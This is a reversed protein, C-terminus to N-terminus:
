GKVMKVFSKIDESIVLSNELVRIFASGIIAGNAYQCAQTFTQNDKIGFGILRPNKLGMSNVRNFYAIMDDTVGSVSGTVSASSVM